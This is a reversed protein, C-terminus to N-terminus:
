RTALHSFARYEHCVIFDLKFRDDCASPTLHSERERGMQEAISM